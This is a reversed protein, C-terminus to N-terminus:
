HLILDIVINFLNQLIKSVTKCDIDVKLQIPTGDDMFDCAVLTSSGSQQLTKQGIKKLMDRVAIEANTQLYYLLKIYM